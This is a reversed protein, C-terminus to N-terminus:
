IRMHELLLKYQKRKKRRQPWLWDHAMGFVAAFWLSVWKEAAWAVAFGGMALVLIFIKFGTTMWTLQMFDALWSGPDILMYSSFLLAVVVTVVFPVTSSRLSCLRLSALTNFECNRTMSQRFPPGVSLVIGSLIYQFCSLLFLTTNESNEINSKETDLVPPIFRYIPQYSADVLLPPIARVLATAASNYIRSIPRPHMHRSPGVVTHPSQSVSLQRDATKPM